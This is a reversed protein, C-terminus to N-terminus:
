CHSPPRLLPLMSADRRILDLNEEAFDFCTTALGSCRRAIFGEGLKDFQRTPYPDYLIVVHYPVANTPAFCNAEPTPNALIKM